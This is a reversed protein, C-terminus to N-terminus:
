QCISMSHSGPVPPHESSVVEDDDDDDDDHHASYIGVSLFGLHHMPIKDPEDDGDDNIWMKGM